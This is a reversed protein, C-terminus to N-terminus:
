VNQFYVFSKHIVYFCIAFFFSNIVFGTLKPNGDSNHLSPLLSLYRSKVVPLQFIFFLLGIIIPIQFEEYLVELSDKSQNQRRYLIEDESSNNQIYDYEEKPNPQPVYNPQTQEDNFQVTKKPIDRSPLSTAGSASAQQIGSVFENMIKQQALEPNNNQVDNTELVINETNNMSSINQQITPDSPLDALNTTDSM